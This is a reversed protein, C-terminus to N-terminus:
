ETMEANVANEADGRHVATGAIRRAQPLNRLFRYVGGSLRRAYWYPLQWAASVGYRQRMYAPSPFLNFWVYRARDSLGPLTALTTYFDLTASRTEASLLNFLRADVAGPRLAHAACRPGDLPLSPWRAALLDLTAQLCSLLELSQASSAITQWDLQAGRTAILLALDFQAHLGRMQHHLALHAPLYVANAEASLIHLPGGGVDLSECRQWFWDMPLRRMYYPVDLVHWHLEVPADYPPPPAFQEQNSHSLLTGAQHETQVPRYGAALLAQRCAPAAPAPVVLDIDGIARPWLSAYLTETLAAGKLLLLPAGTAALTRQVHALQDLLRVNAAAARYFAQELALDVPAPLAARVPRTLTYVVPAINGPIVLPLAENWAIAAVDPMSQADWAAALLRYVAARAPLPPM